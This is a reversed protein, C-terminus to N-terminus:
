ALKSFTHLDTISIYEKVYCDLALDNTPESFYVPKGKAVAYGLELKCSTGLHGDFTLWYCADAEDIARYHEEAFWLKKEKSDAKDKADETHFLNPFLPTIGLKELERFVEQAEKRYKMSCGIVVKM